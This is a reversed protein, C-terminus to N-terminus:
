LNKEYLVSIIILFSSVDLTKLHGEVYKAGIHEVLLAFIIIFILIVSHKM